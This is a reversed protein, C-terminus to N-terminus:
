EQSKLVAFLKRRIKAPVRPNPYKSYLRVTEKLSDLYATCNPCKALHKKIERCQASTLRADLEACIHKVVDPCRATKARM